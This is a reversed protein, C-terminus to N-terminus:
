SQSTIWLFQYPNMPLVYEDYSVPEQSYRDILPKNVDFEARHLIYSGLQQEEDNFNCIVLTKSTRSKRLYAFMHRHETPIFEGGKIDAFEPTKKRIDILKQVSSFIRHEATGKQKRREAKNWDMVPRHLWRNDKHKGTEKEYKYYNTTGIEDGYYLLPIGGFSMVVSQLLIFRDLALNLADDDEDELAKEIGILAASTGSIRADGTKPNYMFPFGKAFTDPFKGIFFDVLFQRHMEPTYGAEQAYWDEYGLGIDDHSRIYNLWTTREPKKPQHNLGVTLLGANRTAITDWLLTMLTANYALECEKEPGEGKGLYKVVEDPSVIAEAIFLVGPAVIDKCLRMIQLLSHAEPLNQCNTGMKKWMFPVADLRLIDVGQNALFLLANMMQIFVEPNTYNLDWQYKHFVTMVWKDLKDIKTFNGPDIGPFVEPMSKEYLDPITRDKFFYYYEQYRKQGKLAKQAWEHQDSTHNVVLDLAMIMKRKRFEGAIDQIDQMTGIDERVKAYDSVAYGGDNHKEPTKLLPMLHALNVGLEELYPLKNLFGKLNKNYRDAYLMMGVWRQHLFWQADEERQVDITKLEPIRERYAKVLINLLKELHNEVNKNQGYLQKWLKYLWHFNAGLRTLFRAPLEKSDKELFQNLFHHSNQEYL